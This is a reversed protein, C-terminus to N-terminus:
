LLGEREALLLGELTADNTPPDRAIELAEEVPVSRPALFENSDHDVDVPELGEAFVYGRTHRLVGTSCWVEQLLSTSSPEFGTEEALERAGAETYSEGSEVIGAPLELQTNRVTPRYQEVFLVRDDAVAVIVTAPSLEAWYYKKETGDPQEVRDYGGVFWGEDYEVVVEKVPWEPEGPLSHNRGDAFAPLDRLDAAPADPDDPADGADSDANERTM